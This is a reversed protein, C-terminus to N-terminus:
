DSQAEMYKVANNYLRGAFGFLLEKEEASFGETIIERWNENVGRLVPLIEEAKKTPYVLSVRKDEGQKREIYGMEELEALQRAVNSKNLFMIKALTDQSVGPNECLNLIYKAQYGKLDCIEKLRNESYVTASRGVAQIKKLFTAM